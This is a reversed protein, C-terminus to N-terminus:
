ERFSTDMHVAPAGMVRVWRHAKPTDDEAEYVEGDEIVVEDGIPPLDGISLMMQCIKGTSVNKFIHIPM